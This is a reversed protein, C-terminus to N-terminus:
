LTALRAALEESVPQLPRRVDPRVPLGRNHLVWKLAPIFSTAGLTDRLELLSAANEETPDDLVRRV